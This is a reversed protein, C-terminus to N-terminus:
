FELETQTKNAHQFDSPSVSILAHNDFSVPNGGVSGTMQVHAALAVEMPAGQGTGAGAKMMKM